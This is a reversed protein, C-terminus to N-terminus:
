KSKHIWVPVCGNSVSLSMMWDHYPRTWKMLLFKLRSEAMNMEVVHM